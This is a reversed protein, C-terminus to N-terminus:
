PRKEYTHADSEYSSEYSSVLVKRAHSSPKFTFYTILVCDRWSSDIITCM